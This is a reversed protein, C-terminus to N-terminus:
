VTPNAAATITTIPKIRKGIFMSAIPTSFTGSRNVSPITAPMLQANAVTM